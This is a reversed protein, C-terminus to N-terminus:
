ERVREVLEVEFYYYYEPAVPFKPYLPDRQVALKVEEEYRKGAVTNNASCWAKADEEDSFAKKVSGGRLVVFVGHRTFLRNDSADGEMM